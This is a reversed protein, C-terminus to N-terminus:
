LGNDMGVFCLTAIFLARCDKMLTYLATLTGTLATKQGRLVVVLQLASFLVARQRSYMVLIVQMM